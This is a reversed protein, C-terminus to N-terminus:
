KFIKKDMYYNNGKFHTSPKPYIHYEVNLLAIVKEIYQAMKKVSWKKIDPPYHYIVRGKEPHHFTITQPDIQMILAYHVEKENMGGFAESNMCEMRIIGHFYYGYQDLSPGNNVEEFTAYGRKGEYQIRIVNLMEESDWVFKGNKITFFHKYKVQPM